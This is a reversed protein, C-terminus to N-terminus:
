KLSNLINNSTSILLDFVRIQSWARTLALDAAIVKGDHELWRDAEKGRTSKTASLDPDGQIREYAVKRAVRKKEEAEDKEHYLMESYESFIALNTAFSFRAKEKLEQTKPPNKELERIFARLAAKHKEYEEM